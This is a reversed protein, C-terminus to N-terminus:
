WYLTRRYKILHYCMPTPDASMGTIQTWWWFVTAHICVIALNKRSVFIWYFWRCIWLYNIFISTVAYHARLRIEVPFSLVGRPDSLGLQRCVVKTNNATWGQACITRWTQNVCVEVQGFQSQANNLKVEGDNCLEIILFLLYAEYYLLKQINVWDYVSM